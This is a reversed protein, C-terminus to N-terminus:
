DIHNASTQQSAYPLARHHLCIMGTM